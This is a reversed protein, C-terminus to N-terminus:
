LTDRRPATIEWTGILARGDTKRYGCTGVRGPCDGMGEGDRKSKCQITLAARSSERTMHMYTYTHVEKMRREAESYTLESWVM